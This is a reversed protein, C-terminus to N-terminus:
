PSTKNLYHSLAINVNEIEVYKNGEYYIVQLKQLIPLVILDPQIFWTPHNAQGPFGRKIGGNWRTGICFQDEYLGWIISSEGDDFLVLIPYKPNQLWAIPRVDKANM